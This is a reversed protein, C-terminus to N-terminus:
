REGGKDPNILVYQTPDGTTEFVSLDAECSVLLPELESNGSEALLARVKDRDLPRSKELLRRDFSKRGAKTVVTVRGADPVVAKQVGLARMRTLIDEDIERRTARADSEVAKLGLSRTVLAGLEEHGELLRVSGELKAIELGEDPRLRWADIDPPVRPVVHEDWFRQARELLYRGLPMDADQDVVLVPGNADEMNFYCFSGWDRRAAAINVQLQIIESERLGEEYVRRFVPAIPSKIEGVGSGRQKDAFIDFDPRVVVNPFDPHSVPSGSKRGRRGTKRWYHALAVPEYTHGRLTHITDSDIEEDTIPRTKSYYIDLANAWSSLGLIAPIDSGGIGQQRSVLFARRAEREEETLYNM